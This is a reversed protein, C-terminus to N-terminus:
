IKILNEVLDASVKTDSILTMWDFIIKKNSFLLWM